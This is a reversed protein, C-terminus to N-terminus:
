MEGGEENGYRRWQRETKTGGRMEKVIQGM